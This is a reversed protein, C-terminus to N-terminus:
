TRIVGGDRLEAHLIDEDVEIVFGQGNQGYHAWMPVVDPNSSFCTTPMDLIEGMVEEYFALTAPSSNHDVTLFLEFPDNFERPLSFKLTAGNHSLAVGALESGLYKYLKRAM